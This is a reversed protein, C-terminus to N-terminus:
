GGSPQCARWLGRKSVRSETVLRSFLEAYRVNPPVTLQLAYGGAALAGNFFSGDPGWVYVLARSYRDVPDVDFAIRVDKGGIARETFASAERGFCETGSHTEPTDVGILRARHGGTRIDLEGFSIDRLVITDGDIVRAVHTRIAGLPPKPMPASTDFDPLAPQDAAEGFSACAAALALAIFVLPLRKPLTTRLQAAYYPRSRVCEPTGM